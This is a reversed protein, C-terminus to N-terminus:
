SAPNEPSRRYVFARTVFDARVVSQPMPRYPGATEVHAWRGSSELANAKDKFGADEWPSPAVNFILHGGPRTVRVLEDLAEPPAGGFALVGMAVVVTFSAAAFDLPEGLTRKRLERYVSRERARALMGDSMDIGVLDAFGVARLLEGLAGTGVGADLLRAGSVPVHRAVLAVAVSSNMYGIDRMDADYTEAWEDYRLARTQLDPARAIRELWKDLDRTM